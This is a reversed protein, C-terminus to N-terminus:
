FMKNRIMKWRYIRIWHGENESVLYPLNKNKARFYGQLYDIFLLPKKKRLALKLSAIATILLGYRLKYFAEGQKQNSKKAYSQGTPRLHKVHLETIVKVEFGHYKALLEDVTDWGISPRLGGIKKFCKKSYAKLAGRVHDNNTLSEDVWIGKKDIVCIGGCVGMTSDNEFIHNVRELYDKPFILDADYKCIIDYDNELVQFGKYFAEIVKSGPQHKESSTVNVVSIFPYEEVFKQIIEGTKDTSHDNVVVIKDPLFTQNVLSQLNNAINQEENHATIIIYIKM